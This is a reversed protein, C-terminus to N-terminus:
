FYIPKGKAAPLRFLMRRISDLQRQEKKSGPQIKKGEFVNWMAAIMRIADNETYPGITLDNFMAGMVRTKLDAAVARGKADCSRISVLPFIGFPQEDPTFAKRARKWYMKRRPMNKRKGLTHEVQRTREWEEVVLYGFLLDVLRVVHDPPKTAGKPVDFCENLLAACLNEYRQRDYSRIIERASQSSLFGAPDDAFWCAEPYVHERGILASLRGTSQSRARFRAHWNEFFGSEAKGLARAHLLYKTQGHNEEEEHTSSVGQYV